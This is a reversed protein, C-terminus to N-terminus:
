PFIDIDKRKAERLINDAFDLKLELCYLELALVTGGEDNLFTKKTRGICLGASKNHSFIWEYWKDILEFEMTPLSLRRWCEEM